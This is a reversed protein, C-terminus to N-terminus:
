GVDDFHKRHFVPQHPRSSSLSIRCRNVRTQVHLSSEFSNHSLQARLRTSIAPQTNCLRQVCRAECISLLVLHLVHKGKPLSAACMKRKTESSVTSRLERSFAGNKSSM